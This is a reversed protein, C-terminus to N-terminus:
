RSKSPASILGHLDQFISPRQTMGMRMQDYVMKRFTKHTSASPSIILCVDKIDVLFKFPSEEQNKKTKKKTSTASPIGTISPFDDSHSSNRIHTASKIRKEIKSSSSLRIEPSTPLDSSDSPAISIRILTPRVM